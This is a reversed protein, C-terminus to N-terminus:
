KAPPPMTPAVAVSVDDLDVDTTVLQAFVWAETGDPAVVKLWDGAQNKGLIELRDGREVTGMVQHQTSPGARMNLTDTNVTAQKRPAAVKIVPSPTPTATATEAVFWSIDEVVLPKDTPIATAAISPTSTSAADGKNGPLISTLKSLGPIREMASAKGGGLFLVAGGAITGVVVLLLIISRWKIRM